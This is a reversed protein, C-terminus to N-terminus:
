LSIVVVLMGIVIGVLIGFFVGFCFMARLKTLDNM